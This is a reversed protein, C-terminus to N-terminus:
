RQGFLRRIWRALAVGLDGLIAEVLFLGNRFYRPALRGPEGLLRYAWELGIRQMWRPARRVRGAVFDLSAGIQVCAPVGLSQCHEDLWKEGKPQGLAVFLLDAQSQRIQAVLDRQEEESLPRCPPSQVGVIQLGPYRATLNAAAARAVEPAAGLLFVRYGRQAARRCLALLLDAGAVREPLPDKMLRSYWVMPMGDALLFAARGNLDALQPDRHCLMAYHLNATVFFSPRGRAILRDVADIAQGFRIAALPLGWVTTCPLDISDELAPLPLSVPPLSLLPADVNLSPTPDANAM